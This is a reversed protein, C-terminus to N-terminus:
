RGEEQHQAARAKEWGVGAAFGDIFAQKPTMSIRALGGLGKWWQVARRGAAAAEDSLARVEEATM